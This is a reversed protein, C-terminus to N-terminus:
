SLGKLVRVGYNTEFVLTSKGPIRSQLPRMLQAREGTRVNVLYAIDKGADQEVRYDGASFLHKGVKFEFPINVKETRYDAAQLGTTAFIATLGLGLALARFIRNKM